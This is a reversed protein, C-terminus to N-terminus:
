PMPTASIWTRRTNRADAGRDKLQRALELVAFFAAKPLTRLRAEPSIQAPDFPPVPRPFVEPWWLPERPSDLSLVPSIDRAAADRATFPAGLQWRGRITRIVSTHRYEADIVTREPIWASIAIAPVRVGLRDFAFGMQGVPAAPDPPLIPPPPCPDYTGGHEDFTVILLTNYANSGRPSSASRVAALVKALLAEGGLLAPM